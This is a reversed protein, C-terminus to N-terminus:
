SLLTCTGFDRMMQGVVVMGGIAPVGYLVCMFITMAFEFGRDDGAESFADAATKVMHVWGGGVIGLVVWSMTFGRQLSTSSQPQFRSLGGIVALPICGIYVGAVSSFMDLADFEDGGGKRASSSAKSSDNARSGPLSATFPAPVRKRDGVSVPEVADFRMEAAFFGGAAEAQAMTPTRVLAIAPYELNLLSGIINMVSMFAYPAVTRGFAAYGYQQIQDGRARYLTIVAWVAQILSILIKPVNYSSALSGLHAHAPAKLEDVARLPV